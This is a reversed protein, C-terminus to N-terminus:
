EPMKGTYVSMPRFLKNNAIQERIHESWGIVRSTCFTTSFLERPIGVHELVVATWYEVNVRLQRVPQGLRKAKEEQRKSLAELVAKEISRALEVRTGNQRDAVGRLTLSRPDDTRYVRHGFGMIRRENALENAIWAEANDPSGISDIMDLVPGPAGGHLPGSLSAIGATIAGGVDAGTSAAVRATFTSANMGHDMTLILYTEVARLQETTPRKGLVGNLFRDAYGRNNQKRRPSKGTQLVEVISPMLAPLIALERTVEALDRNLWPKLKRQNAVISLATRVRCLPDSAPVAAILGIEKGTLRGDTEVQQKFKCLEAASPAVGHRLIYWVEEVTKSEALQKAEFGNFILRGATGDVESIKTHCAYVGELGPAVQPQPKTEM